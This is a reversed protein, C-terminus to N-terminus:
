VVSDCFADMKETLESAFCPWLGDDEDRIECIEWAKHEPIVFTIDERCSWANYDDTDYKEEDEDTICERLVSYLKDGNSYRYGVWDIAQREGSTLTLTYAM